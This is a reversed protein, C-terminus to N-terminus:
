WIDALRWSDRLKATKDCNVRRRGLVSWGVNCPKAVVRERVVIYAVSRSPLITCSNIDGNQSFSWFLLVISKIFRIPGQLELFSDKAASDSPADCFMSRCDLPNFLPSFNDLFKTLRLWLKWPCESGLQWHRFVSRCSM